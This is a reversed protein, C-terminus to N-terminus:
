SEAASEPMRRGMYLDTNAPPIVYPVSWVRKGDLLVTAEGAGQRAFAFRWTRVGASESWAELVMLVAPTNMSVFSFDVVNWGPSSYRLLPKPRLALPPGPKGETIRCVKIGKASQRMTELRALSKGRDAADDQASAVPGILSAMMGLFSRRTAPCPGGLSLDLRDDHNARTM